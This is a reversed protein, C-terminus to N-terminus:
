RPAHCTIKEDDENQETHQEQKCRVDAASREDRHQESKIGCVREIDSEGVRRKQRRLRRDGRKECIYTQIERKDDRKIDDQPAHDDRVEQIYSNETEDYEREEARGKDNRERIVDKRDGGDILERRRDIQEEQGFFIEEPPEDSGGDTKEEDSPSKKM